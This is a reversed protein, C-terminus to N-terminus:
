RHIHIPPAAHLEDRGRLRRAAPVHRRAGHLEHASMTTDRSGLAHAAGPAHRLAGDLGGVQPAGAVLRGGPVSPGRNGPAPLPRAVGEHGEHVRGKGGAVGALVRLREGLARAAVHRQRLEGVEGAVGARAAARARGSRALSSAPARREAQRMQAYALRARSRM